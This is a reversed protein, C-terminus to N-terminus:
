WMDPWWRNGKSTNNSASLLQLNAECHLGCVVDSQLPVIHDVHMDYGAERNMSAILYLSEIHEKNSWAPTAQLKTAKRKALAANRKDPNLKRWQEKKLSITQHNRERYDKMQATIAERNEQYYTKQQTLVRERNQYYHQKGYDSRCKKCVADVKYKGTKKKFFDNVDKTIYCRTCVKTLMVKGTFLFAQLFWRSM